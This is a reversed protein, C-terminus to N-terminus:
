CSFSRMGARSGPENRSPGSPSRTVCVRRRFSATSGTGGSREQCRMCRARLWNSSSFRSAVSRRITTPLSLRRGHRDQSQRRVRIPQLRRAFRRMLAEIELVHERQDLDRFDASSLVEERSAADRPRLPDGEGKRAGARSLVGQGVPPAKPEGTFKDRPRLPKGCVPCRGFIPPMDGDSTSTDPAIDPQQETIIPM